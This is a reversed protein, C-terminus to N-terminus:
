QRCEQPLLSARVDGVKCSWTVKGTSDASPVLLFSRQAAAGANMTLAIVGNSPNLYISQLGLPLPRTYGAETLDAPIRRRQEYYNGVADAVEKGTALAQATKARTTYDQYAPLAVAALIGILGPVLLAYVIVVVAGSTGGAHTLHAARVRPDSSELRSAEILKRCHRYYVGDAFIPPLVFFLAFLVLLLVGARDAGLMPMFVAALAMVVYPAFFYPLAKWWMKRYLLWYFTFLFAPWHWGPKTTGARDFTKFKQLYHAQNKPGIVAAYLAHAEDERSMPAPRALAQWDSTSGLTPEMRGGPEPLDRSIRLGCSNCFKAAAPNQLGCQPCTM